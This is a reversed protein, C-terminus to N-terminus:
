EEDEIIPEDSIENHLSKESKPLDHLMQEATDAAHLLAELRLGKRLDRSLGDTVNHWIKEGTHKAIGQDVWVAFKRETLALTILMARRGETHDLKFKHFLRRNRNLPDDGLRKRFHFVLECGTKEEFLHVRKALRAMEPRTLFLSPTNRRLWRIM